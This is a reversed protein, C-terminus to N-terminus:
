QLNIEIQLNVGTRVWANTVTINTPGDGKAKMITSSRPELRQSGSLVPGRCKLYWPINSVNQIELKGEKKESNVIKIKDFKVCSLFLQSLWEERGGVMDAIWVVTRKNDLAERVGQISQEKAFVLTMPRQFKEINFEGVILGHLDSNGMLTLNNELGWDIVYPYWDSGNSVEVGHLYGKDLLKKQFEFNNRTATNFDPHNWQIFAGQKAANEIATFPDENDVANVDNLFLANFHGYPQKRTIECGKILIIGYKEAEVKALEYATNDDGSLFPRDIPGEVHDTIAMVDLGSVWSEIVRLDPWVYGDSFVTHIHFDCKLVIYEGVNPIMIERRIIPRELQTLTTPSYDDSVVITCISLLIFLFVGFRYINSFILLRKGM